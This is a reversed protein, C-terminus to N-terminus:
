KNYVGQKPVYIIIHNEIDIRITGLLFSLLFRQRSNKQGSLTKVYKLESSPVNQIKIWSLLTGPIECETSAPSPNSM